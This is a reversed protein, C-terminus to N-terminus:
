PKSKLYFIFNEQSSRLYEEYEKTLSKKYEPDMPGSFNKIKKPAYEQDHEWAKKLRIEPFETLEQLLTRANEVSSKKYALEQEWHKLRYEKSPVPWGKVKGPWDPHDPNVDSSIAGVSGDPYVVAWLQGPKGNVYPPVEALMEKSLIRHDDYVVVKVQIGPHWKTPLAYCCMIGGAGYASVGEGGAKNEPHIPDQLRYLIGKDTYNVGSVSVGVTPNLIQEACGTLVTSFFITGVFYTLRMFKKISM